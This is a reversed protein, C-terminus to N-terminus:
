HDGVLNDLFYRFDVLAKTKRAQYVLFFALLLAQGPKSPAAPKQPLNHYVDGPERGWKGDLAKLKQLKFILRGM